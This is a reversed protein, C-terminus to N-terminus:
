FNSPPIPARTLAPLLQSAFAFAFQFNIQSSLYRPSTIIGRYCTATIWLHFYFLPALYVLTKLENPQAPLL